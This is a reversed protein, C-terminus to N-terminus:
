EKKKIINTTSEYMQFFSVNNKKKKVCVELIINAMNDNIHLIQTYEQRIRNVIKLLKKKSILALQVRTFVKKWQQPELMAIDEGQTTKEERCLYSALTSAEEGDIKVANELFRFIQEKEEDNEKISETM